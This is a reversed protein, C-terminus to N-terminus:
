VDPKRTYPSCFQIKFSCFARVLSAGCGTNGGFIFVNRKNDIWTMGDFAGGPNTPGAPPNISEVSWLGTGINFRWIDNLIFSSAYNKIKGQGSFLWLEMNGSGTWVFPAVRASPAFTPDTQGITGYNGVSNPEPSGSVWTWMFTRTSYRWLDNRTVLSSFSTVADSVNYGLGGFLWLNGNADTWTVGMARAGPTSAAAEDGINAPYVPLENVTNAGNMWTWVRSAASVRWMDGLYQNTSHQYQVMGGYLWLDGAGDTWRMGISRGKPINSASAVRQTGYVGAFAAANTGGVFTWQESDTDFQWLDALPEQFQSNEDGYSVGYGYGGFLWLTGDLGTWAHASQRAGPYTSSTGTGMTGYVTRANQATSGGSWTWRGNVTDYRWMDNKLGPSGGYNDYGNGGFLWLRDSKDVWTSSFVRAGPHNGAESDDRRTGYISGTACTRNGNVLSWELSASVGCIWILILVPAHKLPM